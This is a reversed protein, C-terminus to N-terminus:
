VKDLLTQMLLVWGAPLTSLELNQIRSEILWSLLAMLQIGHRQQTVVNQEKYPM